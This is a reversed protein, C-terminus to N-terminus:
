EMLQSPSIYCRAILKLFSSQCNNLSQIYFAYIVQLNSQSSIKGRSKKYLQEQRNPKQLLM